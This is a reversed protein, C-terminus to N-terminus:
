KKARSLRRAANLCTRCSRGLGKNQPKTNEPTFEHGRKCHTVFKNWPVYNIKKMRGKASADQMNQSPTGIWIHAPNVCLRVDCTHCAYMGPPITKGNATEWSVRHAFKSVGDVGINGYGGFRVAGM